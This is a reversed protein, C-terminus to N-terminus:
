GGASRTVPAQRQKPWVAMVLAAIWGLVTWGLLMNVIILAVLYRARRAAGIVAPLFYLLVAGAILFGTGAASNDSGAAAALIGTGM